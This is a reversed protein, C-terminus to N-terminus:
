SLASADRNRQRLGSIGAWVYSLGGALILTWVALAAVFLIPQDAFSATFMFLKTEGQLLGIVLKGAGSVTLFGGLLICGLDAWFKSSSRQM